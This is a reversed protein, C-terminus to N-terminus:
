SDEELAKLVEDTRELIQKVLNSTDRGAAYAGGFMAAAILGVFLTHVDIGEQPLHSYERDESHPRPFAPDDRRM